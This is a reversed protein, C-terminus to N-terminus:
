QGDKTEKTANLLLEVLEKTTNTDIVVREILQADEGPLNFVFSLIINGGSDATAVGVKTSLKPIIKSRESNVKLDQQTPENSTAM